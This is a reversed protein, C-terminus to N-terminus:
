NSLIIAAWKNSKLAEEPPTNEHIIQLLSDRFDLIVEQSFVAQQLILTANEEDSVGTNLFNNQKWYLIDFRKFIGFSGIPIIPNVLDVALSLHTYNKKDVLGSIEVYTQLLLFGSNVVTLNPVFSFNYELFLPLDHRVKFTAFISNQNANIKQFEVPISLTELQDKLTRLLANPEPKPKNTNM